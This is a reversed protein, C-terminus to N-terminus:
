LDNKFEGDAEANEAEFKPDGSLLNKIMEEGLDAISKEDEAAPKPTESVPKESVPEAESASPKRRRLPPRQFRTGPVKPAGPSLNQSPRPFRFRPNQPSRPQEEPVEEVEEAAATTTSTTSTTTTSPSAPPAPEESNEEVDGSLDLEVARINELNGVPKVRPIFKSTFVNRRNSPVQRISVEGNALAAETAAEAEEDVQQPQQQPRKKRRRGGTLNVQRPSPGDEEEDQDITGLVDAIEPKLFTKLKPNSLLTLLKALDDVSDENIKNSNRSNPRQTTTTTRKKTEYTDECGPVNKPDDCKATDPNFVLGSVCGAENPTVGNLCVYYLRCSDPHPLAPHIGLKGGPCKFGNPLSEGEKEADPDPLLPKKTAENQQARKNASLCGKRTSERAWVCTGISPDFHLGEACQQSSGVGNLCSYFRDCEGPDPSPYVGNQRPCYGDGPKPIQLKPRRKCRDKVNHLHDCPDEEPNKDPDFVLGDECQKRKILKGQQCEFYRDCYEPHPFLGDSGPACKVGTSQEEQDDEDDQCRSSSILLSFLFIQALLKKPKLGRHNVSSYM